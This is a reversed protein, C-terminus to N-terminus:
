KNEQGLTTPTTPLFSSPNLDCNAFFNGKQLLSTMEAEKTHHHPQNHSPLELVQAEISHFHSSSTVLLQKVCEVTELISM